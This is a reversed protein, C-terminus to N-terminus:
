IVSLFRFNNISLLKFPNFLHHGDSFIIGNNNNDNQDIPIVDIFLFKIIKKCKDNFFLFMILFCLGFFCLFVYLRLLFM